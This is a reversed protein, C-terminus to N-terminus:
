AWRQGLAMYPVWVTRGTGLVCRTASSRGTHKSAMPDPTRGNARTVAWAPPSRGVVHRWLASRSWLAAFMVAQFHPRHGTQTGLSATGACGTITM